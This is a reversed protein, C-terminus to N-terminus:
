KVLRKRGSLVLAAGALSATLLILWVGASSGDNTRAGRKAKTTGSSGTQSKKSTRGSGSSGSGSKKLTYKKTEKHEPDNKCTREKIGAKSSTAEKVVEWKGWDHGTAPIVKTRTKQCRRCVYLVSGDEECTAEKQVTGEDWDHGLADVEETKTHSPDNTCTFTMIGKEKCSPEKTLVGQDWSHGTMPIVKPAKIREKGEADAFLRGCSTCEWYEETGDEECSANVKDRHQLSHVHSSVFVAKVEVDAAPMTFSATSSAADPIVAGGSIVQWEKFDYGEDPEATLTVTEGELSATLDARGKGNGDDTVVIDYGNVEGVMRVDYFTEKGYDGSALHTRSIEYNDPTYIHGAADKYADGSFYTVPIPATIGPGDTVQENVTEYKRNDWVKGPSEVTSLRDYVPKGAKICPKARDSAIKWARRIHEKVAETEPESFTVKEQGSYVEVEPDLGAQVGGTGKINVYGHIYSVSNDVTNDIWVEKFGTKYDQKEITFSIFGGAIQGGSGDASTYNKVWLYQNAPEAGNVALHTPDSHYGHEGGQLLRYYDEPVLDIEAYYTKGGEFTGTFPAAEQYDVSWSPMRDFWKGGTVTCHSDSSLAARSAASIDSAKQGELPPTFNVTVKEIDEWTRGEEAKVSLWVILPKESGEHRVASRLEAKEGSLSCTGDFDYGYDIGNNFAGTKFAYGDEAEISIHILYTEGGEFVFDMVGASNYGKHKDYYASWSKIGEGTITLDPKLRNNQGSQPLSNVKINLSSIESPGKRFSVKEAPGAPEAAVEEEPLTNVEETLAPAPSQDEGGSEAPAGQVPESPGEEEAPAEEAPAEEVPKEQIEQAPEQEEAPAEKAAEELPKAEGGEAQLQPKAPAPEEAAKEKSATSEKTGQAEAKKEPAPAKVTEEEAAEQRETGEEEEAFAATGPLGSVALALVLLMVWLKKKM